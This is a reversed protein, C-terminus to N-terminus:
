FDFGATYAVLVTGSGLGLIVPERSEAALNVGAPQTLVQVLHPVTDFGEGEGICIM